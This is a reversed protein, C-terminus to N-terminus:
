LPFEQIRSTIGWASVGHWVGTEKSGDKYHFTYPVEMNSQTITVNCNVKTKPGAKVPITSVFKKGTRTAKGFTHSFSTTLEMKLTAKAVFPVETTFETGVMLSVGVSNEFHSTEEIEESYSFQFTQELNSENFLMQNAIVKPTNGLIRGADLDFTVYHLKKEVRSVKWKQNDWGVNLWMHLKAGQKRNADVIDLVLGNLKSQIYGGSTIMWKQNTGGHKPWMCLEAGQKQNGGSIDLVMGNLKSEIYQGSMKLIRPVSSYVKWKQNDGGHKSWM